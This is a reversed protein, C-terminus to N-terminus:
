EISEAKLGKMLNIVDFYTKMMTTDRFNNLLLKINKMKMMKRMSNSLLEAEIM